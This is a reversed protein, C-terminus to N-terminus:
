TYDNYNGYEDSKVVYSAPMQFQHSIFRENVGM